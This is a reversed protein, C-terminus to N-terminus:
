GIPPKMLWAPLGLRTAVRSAMSQQNTSANNQQNISSSEAPNITTQSIHANKFFKKLRYDADKEKERQASAIEFKRYVYIVHTYSIHIIHMHIRTHTSVYKLKKNRKMLTALLKPDTIKWDDALQAADKGGLPLAVLADSNYPAYPHQVTSPPSLKPHSITNDTLESTDSRSTSPRIPHEPSHRRGSPRSHEDNNIIPSTEVWNNVKKNSPSSYLTPDLEERHVTARLRQPFMTETRISVAEEEEQEINDAKTTAATGYVNTQQTIDRPTNSLKRHSRKHDGYVFAQYGVASSSSSSFSSDKYMSSSPVFLKETYSDAVSAEMALQPATYSLDGSGKSAARVGHDEDAGEADEDIVLFDNLNDESFMPDDLEPDVFRMQAMMCTLRHRIRRGRHLSQIRIISHQVRDLQHIYISSQETASRDYSYEDKYASLEVRVATLVKSSLAYSSLQTVSCIDVLSIVSEISMTADLHGRSVEVQLTGLPTTPLTRSQVKWEGARAKVRLHSTELSYSVRGLDLKPRLYTTFFATIETTKHDYTDHTTPIKDLIENTILLARSPLYFDSPRISHSATSVPAPHTHQSLHPIYKLLSTHNLSSTVELIHKVAYENILISAHQQQQPVLSSYYMSDFYEKDFKYESVRTLEHCSLRLWNVLPNTITTSDAKLQESDGGTASSSSLGLTGRYQQDLMHARQYVPNDHLQLTSLCSGEVGEGGVFLLGLLSERDQLRNFALDIYTLRPMTSLSGICVSQLSNEQLHLATLSPLFVPWTIPTQGGQVGEATSSSATHISSHVSPAVALLPTLEELQGKYLMGEVTLRYEPAVWSELSTLKNGSLWLISLNPLYLATPVDVLLNHSLILTNLCIFRSLYAGNIYELRNASLDLYCLSPLYCYQLNETETIYNHHLEIHTLYPCNLLPFSTLLNHNISLHILKTLSSLATVDVLRNVDLELHQLSTLFVLSDISVLFNDKVSLFRLLSLRELGKINTLKNVNLELKILKIANMLFTVRRLDEVCLSLSELTPLSTPDLGLLDLIKLDESTYIYPILSQRIREYLLTDSRKVSSTTSSSSTAPTTPDPTILQTPLHTSLASRLWTSLGCFLPTALDTYAPKQPEIPKILPPNSTPSSTHVQTNKLHSTITNRWLPTMSEIPTYAHVASSSLTPSSISPSIYRSIIDESHQLYHAHRYDTDYLDDLNEDADSDTCYDYYVEEEPEAEDSGVAKLSSQIGANGDSSSSALTNSVVYDQSVTAESSDHVTEQLALSSDTVAPPLLAGRKDCDNHMIQPILNTNVTARAEALLISYRALCTHMRYTSQIKVQIYMFM